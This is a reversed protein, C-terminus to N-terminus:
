SQKRMVVGSLHNDPNNGYIRGQGSSMKKHYNISSNPYVVSSFPSHFGTGSHQKINHSLRNSELMIRVPSFDAIDIPDLTIKVKVIPPMGPLHATSLNLCKRAIERNLLVDGCRGLILGEACQQKQISLYQPQFQIEPHIRNPRLPSFDTPHM